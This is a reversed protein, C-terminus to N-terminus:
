KKTLEHCVEGGLVHADSCNTTVNFGADALKKALAVARPAKLGVEDLLIEDNFIEDPTGTKVVHGGNMVIVKDCNLVEEMFHTILVVTLGEENLKHAVDLVERRGLPDLMATSEDLVLM